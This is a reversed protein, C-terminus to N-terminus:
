NRRMVLLHDPQRGLRPFLNVLGSVRKFYPPMETTNVAQFGFKQYLPGLEARCTLYLRGPHQELLYEIITRAVGKDRWDPLVAISALELSGDGHPKIQGCGIIRGQRDVALIFRQWSLGTPNIHVLSIIQRITGADAANAQRLYYGLSSSPTEM